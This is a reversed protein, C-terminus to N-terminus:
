SGAVPKVGCPMGPNSSILGSECHSGAAPSMSWAFSSILFTALGFLFM